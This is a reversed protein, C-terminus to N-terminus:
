NGNAAEPSLPFMRRGYCVVSLTKKEQAVNIVDIAIIISIIIFFFCNEFVARPM